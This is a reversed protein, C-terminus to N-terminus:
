MGAAVAERELHLRRHRQVLILHNLHEHILFAVLGLECRGAGPSTHTHTRQTPPHTHTRTSTNTHAHTCHSTSHTHQQSRKQNLPYNNTPVTGLEVAVNCYFHISRRICLRFSIRASFTKGWVSGKSCNAAMGVLEMDVGLGLVGDALVRIHAELDLLLAPDAAHVAMNKLHTQTCFVGGELEDGTFRHLASDKGAAHEQERESEYGSVCAKLSRTYKVNGRLSGGRTGCVVYPGSTKGSERLKESGNLIKM